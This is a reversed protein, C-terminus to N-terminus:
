AGFAASESTQRPPPADTVPGAVAALWQRQGRVRAVLRGKRGEMSMLRRGREEEARKEKAAKGDRFPDVEVREVLAQEREEGPQM